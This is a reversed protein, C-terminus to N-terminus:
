KLNELKSEKNQIADNENFDNRDESDEEESENFLNVKEIPKYINIM